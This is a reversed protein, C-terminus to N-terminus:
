GWPAETDLLPMHATEAVNPDLPDNIGGALACGSHQNDAIKLYHPEANHYRLVRELLQGQTSERLAKSPPAEPLRDIMKTIFREPLALIGSPPQEDDSYIIAHLGDLEPLGRSVGMWKPERSLPIFTVRMRGPEKQPMATCAIVHPGTIQDVMDLLDHFGTGSGDQVANVLMSQFADTAQTLETLIGADRYARRMLHNSCPPIPLNNLHRQAMTYRATGPCGPWGPPPWPNKARQGLGAKQNPM